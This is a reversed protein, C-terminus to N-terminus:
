NLLRELQAAPMDQVEELLAVAADVQEALLKYKQWDGRKGCEIQEELVEIAKSVSAVTM